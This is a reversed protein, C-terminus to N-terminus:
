MEYPLHNVIDLRNEVEMFENESFDMSAMYDSMQRKCDAIIDAATAISEELGALEDDFRMVSRVERLAYNISESAGQDADLAAYGKGMGEVIKKSNNMLRYRSELADDEGVELKANDIENLEFEALSLEKDRNKDLQRSEELEKKLNVYSM